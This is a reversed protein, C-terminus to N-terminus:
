KAGFAGVSLKVTENRPRGLHDQTYENTVVNAKAAARALAAGAQLCPSDLSLHFDRAAADVFGPLDGRLITTDDDTVQGVPRVGVGPWDHNMWNHSLLVNGRDQLITLDKGTMGNLWILNNRCDVSEEDTGCWFLYTALNKGKRDSVVTNNYFYLTGKRYLDAKGSDGGYHVVQPHNRLNPKILVNGYVFTERYRPDARVLASDEADVLDLPKDGGEIWNYRVVLGASRDKLNNGICNTGLPGLWNYQFVLNIAETYINHEQGSRPNGNGYIRCGEIVINQSATENGSSIVLGNGSDRFVCNRVVLHNVIEVFLSAGNRRYPSPQGAANTFTATPRAGRVDLNEIVIWEPICNTPKSAGGIKIVARAESWYRLSSRTSADEGDIVPLEGMPGPVGRVTIPQQETGQRCIVWKDRYPEARWDILVTDGAVLTEWPVQIPTTLPQFPGVHYTTALASAPAAAM